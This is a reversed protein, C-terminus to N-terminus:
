PLIFSAFPAPEGGDIGIRYIFRGAANAQLGIRIPAAGVGEVAFELQLGQPTTAAHAPQPQITEIEFARLFEPSLLLSRNGGETFSVTLLDPTTWRAIRPYDIRAAGLDRSAGSLIGGGGTLGALAAVLVLGFVM